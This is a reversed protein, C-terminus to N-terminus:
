VGKKRKDILIWALLAANGCVGVSAIVIAVTVMTNLKEDKADLEAKAEDLNNQVQQIATDLSADAAEIKASLETRLSADAAQYAAEAADLADNLAQIKGDLAADGDAIAQSLAAKADDLNKQVQQIAADLVTDAEEIKSTLSNKLATDASRYAGIARNLAADLETIKDDLAKDGDSIAEPLETKAAALDSAVQEIAADLTEEAQEIVGLLQKKLATDAAKYAANAQKIASELESIRTSLASDGAAIAERLALEAASLDDAVQQVRDLLEDINTVAQDLATDLKTLADALSAPANTTDMGALAADLGSLTNKLGTIESANGSINTENTAVRETLKSILGELRSIEKSVDETKALKTLDAQITQIEAQIEPILGEGDDALLEDLRDLAAKLEEKTAMSNGLEEIKAKLDSIADSTTTDAKMKDLEDQLAKLEEKTAHDKAAAVLADLKEQLAEVDGASPAGIPLSLTAEGAEYNATQGSTVKITLTDKGIVATSSAQIKLDSAVGVVSYNNGAIVTFTANKIEGDSAEIELQIINDPLIASVPSVIEFTPTARKITYTVSGSYNGTITITKETATTIDEPFVLTYDTNETLVKGNVTITVTSRQAERNYTFESQSLVIQSATLQAPTVTFSGVEIDTTSALYNTGASVSIKITYDGANVPAGTVPNGEGDYYKVAIQGMGEIGTKAQVTAEKSNGDYVLTGPATYAFHDRNPEAAKITFSKSVMGTYVADDGTKATVTILIEGANTFDDTTEGARTYTVTYHDESVTKGGVVVTVLPKQASGNYETSDGDFSLQVTADTTFSAGQRVSVNTLEAANEAPTVLANDSSYYYYDTALSGAVTAGNSVTVCAFSGGMLRDLNTSTCNIENDIVIKEFSGGRVTFCNYWVAVSGTFTGDEVTLHAGVSNVSCRANIAYGANTHGIKGNKVTLTDLLLITAPSDSTDGSHSSTIAGTKGESSDDITIESSGTIRIMACNETPVFDAANSIKKGNLDIAFTGETISLTSSLSVNSLLKLTSSGASQAATAAAALTTYYSVTSNDGSTTVSAKVEAGCAKCYYAGDKEEFYETATVSMDHAASKADNSYVTTGDCALRSYVTNTSTKWVPYPDVTEGNDLSQGWALIEDEGAVSKSGNLLYAVSGSDFDAASKAVASGPNVTNLEDGIGNLTKNVNDTMLFYTNIDTFNNCGIVGGVNATWLITDTTEGIVAGMNYSNEVTGYDNSGVVGGVNANLGAKGSVAGINYCNKVSGATNNGVVGGAYSHFQTSTGSIAGENYCNEVSASNYGAVGGVNVMSGDANVDVHIVGSFSCNQLDIQNYGVVGGVYVLGANAVATVSFYSDSIKVNKISKDTNNLGDTYGFLGVYRNGSTTDSEECYLGSITFGRGDFSGSYPASDSGIPTWSRFANVAEANTNLVGNVLVNTNVTINDILIANASSSYM